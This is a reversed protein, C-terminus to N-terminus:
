GVDPVVVTPCPSFGLARHATSGMAMGPFSGPSRRGVVLLDAAHRSVADLVVGAPGGEEVVTSYAVGADRLPACWEDVAATARMRAQVYAADLAAPAFASALELAHVVVVAASSRAALNAAWALAGAAVPSGDLGVAITAFPWADGSRTGIAPVVAVPRTAHEAVQHATSGLRLAQFGGAGRRGVVVLDAAVEDAFALLASAPPGALQQTGAHGAQEVATGDGAQGTVRAVVVEAHEADALARAWARAAAAGASGDDGVLLRSSTM